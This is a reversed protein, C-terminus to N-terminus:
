RSECSTLIIKWRVWVQVWRRWTDARQQRRWQLRSRMCSNGALNAAAGKMTHAQRETDAIDKAELFAKLSAIQLPINALFGDMVIKALDKDGMLCEM